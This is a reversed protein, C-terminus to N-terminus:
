LDMLEDWASVKSGERCTHVFRYRLHFAPHCLVDGPYLEGIVDLWCHGSIGMYYFSADLFSM